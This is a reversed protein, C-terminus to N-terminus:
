QCVGKGQWGIWLVSLSPSASNIVAWWLLLDLELCDLSDSHTCSLPVQYSADSSGSPVQLSAALGSAMNLLWPMSTFNRQHSHLFYLEMKIFSFLVHWDTEIRHRALELLLGGQFSPLGCPLCLHCVPSLWYPKVLPLHHKVFEIAFKLSLKVASTSLSLTFSVM